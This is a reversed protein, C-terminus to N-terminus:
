ERRREPQRGSISTASVRLSTRLSRPRRRCDGRTPKKANGDAPTQVDRGLKDVRRWVRIRPYCRECAHSPRKMSTTGGYGSTESRGIVPRQEHNPPVQRRGRVCQHAMGLGGSRADEESDRIGDDPAPVKSWRPPLTGRRAINAIVDRLEKSRKWTTCSRGHSHNQLKGQVISRPREMRTASPYITESIIRACRCRAKSCTSGMTKRAALGRLSRDHCSISWLRMAPWELGRRSRLFSSSWTVSHSPTVPHFATTAM